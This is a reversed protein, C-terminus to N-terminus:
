FTKLVQALRAIGEEIEDTTLACFPLRIFQDGNADTFFNRGDTLLLNSEQARNLLNEAQMKKNLTVGVFFGGEPKNWTALSTMHQELAKLMADLRPRYLDKLFQIHKELFGRQQYEHVIAQNIYSSNIYTDEAWRAISDIITEPIIMFGVRLGPCIVKSFSSMKIVREPALEFISPITIGRYRLNRYPSDEIVLFNYEKALNAIKKRKEFSLVTGSPNQFDPIIYFINPRDGQRLRTEIAGVNVGDKELEFGRIQCGGRKFITLARDYSPNETYVLNEDKVMVRVCIDLLQLSGQGLIVLNPDVGDKLALQERLPIFGRSAGYQLIVDTQQEIVDKACDILHKPDFSETAPVGRTFRIMREKM